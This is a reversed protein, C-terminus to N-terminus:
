DLHWFSEWKWSSIPNTFKRHVDNTVAKVFTVTDIKNTQVYFYHVIKYKYLDQCDQYCIQIHKTHAKNLETTPFTVGCQNDCNILRPTIDESRFDKWLRFFWKLKSDPKSYAIFKAKLTKLAILCHKGSQWAIAGSSALFVHPEQSMFDACEM